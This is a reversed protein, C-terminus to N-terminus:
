TETKLPKMEEGFQEGHQLSKVMVAKAKERKEVSVVHTALKQKSLARKVYAVTNVLRNLNSFGEWQVVAKKVETQIM